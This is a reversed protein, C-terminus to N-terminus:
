LKEFSGSIFRALVLVKYKNKKRTRRKVQLQQYKCKLKGPM